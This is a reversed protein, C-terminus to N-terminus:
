PQKWYKWCPGIHDPPCSTSDSWGEETETFVSLEGTSQSTAPNRTPTPPQVFRSGVARGHIYNHMENIHGPHVECCGGLLRVGCDVLRRALKDMFEPNVGTMYRHGIRQFGGANPMVSLLLRGETVSDIGEVANVFASAEWPTCCNAGIVAAGLGGVVGAAVRFCPRDNGSQSRFSDIADRAIEVSTANISELHGAAGLALLHSRNAAFTISFPMWQSFYGFSRVVVPVDRATACDLVTSVELKNAGGERHLYISRPM